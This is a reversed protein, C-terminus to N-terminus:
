ANQSCIRKKLRSIPFPGFFFIQFKGSKTPPHPQFIGNELNFFFISEFHMLIGLYENLLFKNKAMYPPPTHCQNQGVWWVECADCRGCWADHQGCWADQRGCWAGPMTDAAGPMTDAAGRMTDAASHMTDAMCLIVLFM